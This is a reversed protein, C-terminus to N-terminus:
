FATWMRIFHLAELGADRIDEWPRGQYGQKIEGLDLRGLFGGQSSFTGGPRALIRGSLVCCWSKTQPIYSTSEVQSLDAEQTPNFLVTATWPTSSLRDGLPRAQQDRLHHKFAGGLLAEEQLGPPTRGWHRGGASM